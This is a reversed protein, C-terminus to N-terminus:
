GALMCPLIPKVTSNLSADGVRLVWREDYCTGEKVDMMWKAWGGSLIREEVKLKDEIYLHKKHNVEREKKNVERLEDIINRLNWIQTFYCPKTKRQNVSKM